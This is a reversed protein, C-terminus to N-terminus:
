LFKENQCNFVIISSNIAGNYEGLIKTLDLIFSQYLFPSLSKKVFLCIIQLFYARQEYLVKINAKILGLLCNSLGKNARM